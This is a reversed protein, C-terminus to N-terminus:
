KLSFGAAASVSMSKPRAESEALHHVRVDFGIGLHAGLFWRAGGGWNFARVTDPVIGPEGSVRATGVGASLYSWGNSTGFNVSVQPDVTVFTASAAESTGRAFSVDIGFGLRAPGMQFAYVHGGANVGFGRTPVSSGAPLGAFLTESGPIGSMVGRFDFVFPGPPGPTLSQAKAPVTAGSAALVLALAFGSM